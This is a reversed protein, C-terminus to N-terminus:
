AGLAGFPIIFVGDDQHFAHKGTYIIAKVYSKEPALKSELWHLQAVDERCINDSLKVEIGIITNGKEVIFDVEHSGDPSRFHYLAANNYDCYSKLTSAVMGEFLRGLASSERQKGLMTVHNFLLTDRRLGLLSAALASDVLYHKPAKSLVSFMNDTPLWADVRDTLYLQDLLDRYSATTKKDPKSDDGSTSAMLIKQYSATSGTAVAYAKLWARMVQPKRVKKDLEVLEKNVIADIYGKLQVEALDNPYNRIGPYGSLCIENIYDGIALSCKGYVDNTVTANLLESLRIVVAALNREEMSFPRLQLQVIRGAGSHINLNEHSASGTLIFQAATPNDDVIKRVVDWATPVRTWEDILVPLDQISKLTERSMAINRALEDVDLELITKAFQRALLTKGVGKAGVIAVAPLGTLYRELTTEILRHRYEMTLPYHLYM